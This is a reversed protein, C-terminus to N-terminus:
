NEIIYLKLRIHVGGIVCILLLLGHKVTSNLRDNQNDVM